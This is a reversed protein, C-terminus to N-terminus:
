GIFATSTGSNKGTAVIYFEKSTSRTSKLSVRRVKSYDHRLQEVQQQEDPSPFVKAVLNGEERLFQTAYSAALDLCRACGAQDVERIGTLKPALDSIILDFGPRGSRELLKEIQQHVQEDGLDGVILHCNRESIAELEKLDVGVVLGSSGVQRLAIQIWGGPWAGLDLVAQGSKLLGFRKQLEMLKYVARSRFGAGKAKQYFHDQRQYKSM